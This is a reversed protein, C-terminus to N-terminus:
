KIPSLFLRFSGIRAKGDDYVIILTTFATSSYGLAFNCLFDVIWSRAKEMYCMDINLSASASLSTYVIIAVRAYICMCTRVCLHLCIHARMCVCVCECECKCEYECEGKCV